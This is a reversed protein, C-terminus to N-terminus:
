LASQYLLETPREIVMSRWQNRAFVALALGSGRLLTLEGAESIEHRDSNIRMKLTPADLKVTGKCHHCVSQTVQNLELAPLFRLGLLRWIQSLINPRLNRHIQERPVRRFLDQFRVKFSPQSVEMRSRAPTSRDPGM